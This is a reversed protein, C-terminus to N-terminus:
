MAVMRSFISVSTPSAKEARSTALGDVNKSGVGLDIAEAIKNKEAMDLIGLVNGALGAQLDDEHGLGELAGAIVGLIKSFLDAVEDTAVGDAVDEFGVVFGDFL